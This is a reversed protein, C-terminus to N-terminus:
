PSISDSPGDPIAAHNVAVFPAGARRPSVSLNFTERDGAQVTPARLTDALHGTLVHVAAGAPVSGDRALLDRVPVADLGCWRRAPASPRRGSTSSASPLLM